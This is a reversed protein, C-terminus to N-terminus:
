ADRREVVITEIVVDDVPRDMAATPVAAIKDV